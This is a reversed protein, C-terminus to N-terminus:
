VHARGIELWTDEAGDVEAADAAIVVVVAVVAVGAAAAVPEAIPSFPLMTVRTRAKCVKSGVSAPSSANSFPSIM